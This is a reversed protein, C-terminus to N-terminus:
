PGGRSGPLRGPNTRRIMRRTSRSSALRLLWSELLRVRLYEQCLVNLYLGRNFDAEGDRLGTGYAGWPVGGGTRFVELIARMAGAAAVLARALPAAIAHDLNDKNLLLDAHASPLAYRRARPDASSEDVTLIATAAQQELWERAYREHTGTRAALEVPTAPGDDTLM